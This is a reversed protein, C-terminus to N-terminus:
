PGPFDGWPHFSGTSRYGPFRRKQSDTPSTHQYVNAITLNRIECNSCNTAEVGFASTSGNGFASGSATSQITGNCNVMAQSIYGCPTGGDVIIYNQNQINLCGGSPCVPLTINAGSEFLLTLPSGSAGSGQATMASTITGCFHVTTGPGIQTSGSGWNGATNFFAAADANACSSGNAAGAAVQAVYVNTVGARANSGALAVFLLTLVSRKALVSHRSLVSGKSLQPM